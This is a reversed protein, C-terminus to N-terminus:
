PNRGTGRPALLLLSQDLRWSPYSRTLISTACCARFPGMPPNKELGSALVVVRMEEGPEMNGREEESARKHEPIQGREMCVTPTICNVRDNIKFLRSGAIGTGFTYLHAAFAVLPPIFILGASLM